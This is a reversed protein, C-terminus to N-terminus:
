EYKEYYPNGYVRANDFVWADGSLNEPKEIWGGLEGVEIGRFAEICRIRFLKIGKENIMFEDTLEYHRKTEM